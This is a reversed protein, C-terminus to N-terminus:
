FCLPIELSWSFFWTSNGSTKTKPWLTCQPILGGWFCWGERERWTLEGGAINVKKQVGVGGELFGIKWHVGLISFKLGTKGKLFLEIRTLTEWNSNNKIVSFFM